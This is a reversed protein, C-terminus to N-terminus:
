VAAERLLDNAIKVATRAGKENSAAFCLLYLPSNRSNRLVAAREAVAAFREQLRRNFYGGIVETSAKVVRDEPDDYLSPSKQASYFEAFWDGTGFLRDLRTRWAPPIDGAKKLLRNVGMGLPFLVWLDIARTSAIREITN